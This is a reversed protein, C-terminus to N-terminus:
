KAQNQQSTRRNFGFAQWHYRCFSWQLHGNRLGGGNGHARILGEVDEVGTLLQQFYGALPLRSKQGTRAQEIVGQIQFPSLAPQPHGIGAIM